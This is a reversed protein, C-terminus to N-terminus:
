SWSSDSYKQYGYVGNGVDVKVKRKNWFSDWLQAFHKNAGEWTFKGIPSLLKSGMVSM